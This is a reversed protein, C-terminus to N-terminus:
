ALELLFAEPDEQDAVVDVVHEVQGVPDAHHVVPPDDPRDVLRSDRRVVHEAHDDEALPWALDGFLLQRLELKAARHASEAQPCTWSPCGTGSSNKVSTGPRM